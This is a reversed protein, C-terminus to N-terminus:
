ILYSNFRHKGAHPFFLSDAAIASGVTLKKCAVLDFLRVSYDNPTGTQNCTRVVANEEDIAYHYRVRRRFNFSSLITDNPM